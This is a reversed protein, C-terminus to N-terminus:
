LYCMSKMCQGVRLLVNLETIVQFAMLSHNLTEGKFGYRVQHNNVM